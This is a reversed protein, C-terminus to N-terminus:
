GIRELILDDNKCLEVLDSNFRQLIAEKNLNQEAYTRAITNVGQARDLEVDLGRCFDDLNEPEVCTYIGPYEDALKGLETHSEATVVGYGGVSLINTLKSPLVADAGM